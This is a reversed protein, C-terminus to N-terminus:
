VYFHYNSPLKRKGVHKRNEWILTEKEETETAFGSTRRKDSVWGYGGTCGPFELAKEIFICAAVTSAWSM